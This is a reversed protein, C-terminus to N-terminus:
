KKSATAGLIKDVLKFITPSVIFAVPVAAMYGKIYSSVWMKLLLTTDAFIGLVTISVVTSIILDMFAPMILAFLVRRAIPKKFFPHSANKIVYEVLRSVYPYVLFASPFGVMFGRTYVKLWIHFFNSNLGNANLTVILSMIAGMSIAMMLSFLLRRKLSM